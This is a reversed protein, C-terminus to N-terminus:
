AICEDTDRRGLSPCSACVGGGTHCQSGPQACGDRSGAAELVESVGLLRVSGNDHGWSWEGRAAAGLWGTWLQRISALLEHEAALKVGNSPCVYV